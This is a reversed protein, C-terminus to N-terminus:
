RSRHRAHRAEEKAREARKHEAWEDALPQGGAKRRLMGFGREITASTVPKLLIGEKTATLIARTGDEIHYLERFRRPIVVQGKATFRVADTETTTNVPYPM